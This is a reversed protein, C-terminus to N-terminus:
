ELHVPVTVPTAGGRNDHVVIWIFGDGPEGPPQFQDDTDSPGGVSGASPDYLLRVDDSLSGFTTFFEAWIQEKLENGQSDHSAPDPEQSSAPVVPGIHKSPCNTTCHAVTLTATTGGDVARSPGM